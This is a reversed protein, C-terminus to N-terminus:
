KTTDTLNLGPEPALTNLRVPYDKAQATFTVEATVVRMAPDEPWDQSTLTWRFDLGGETITGSQTGTSWNNMVLSENLVRDAIRMAM